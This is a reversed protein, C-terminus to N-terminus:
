MFENDCFSFFMQSLFIITTSLINRSCFHCTPIEFNRELALMDFDHTHWLAVRVCIKTQHVHRLTVCVCIKTSRLYTGLKTEFTYNLLILCYVSLWSNRLRKLQGILVLYTACSKSYFQFCKGKRKEFQFQFCKGSRIREFKIWTNIALKECKSDLRRWM